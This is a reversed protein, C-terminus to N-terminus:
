AAGLQRDLERKMMLSWLPDTLHIPLEEFCATQSVNATCTKRQAEVISFTFSLLCPGSKESEGESGMQVATTKLVTYFICLLNSPIAM